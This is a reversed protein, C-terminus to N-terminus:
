IITLRKQRIKIPNSSCNGFFSHDQTNVKIIMNFHKWGKERDQLFPTAQLGMYHKHKFTHTKSVTLRTGDFPKRYRPCM